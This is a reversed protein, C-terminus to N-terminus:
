KSVAEKREHQEAAPKDCGGPANNVASKIMAKIGEAMETAGHKKGANYAAGLLVVELFLIVLVLVIILLIDLIPM